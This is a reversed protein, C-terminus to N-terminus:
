QGEASVAHILQRLTRLMDTTEHAVFGIGGTLLSVLLIVGIVHGHVRRWGLKPRGFPLDILTRPDLSFDGEVVSGSIARPDDLVSPVLKGPNPKSSPNM